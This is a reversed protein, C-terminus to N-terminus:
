QKASKLFNVIMTITGYENSRNSIMSRATMISLRAM